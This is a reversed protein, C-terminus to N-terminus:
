TRSVAVYFRPLTLDIINNSVVVYGPFGANLSNSQPIRVLRLTILRSDVSTGIFIDKGMDALSRGECNDHLYNSGLTHDLNRITNIKDNDNNGSVIYISGIKTINDSNNEYWTDFDSQLYV